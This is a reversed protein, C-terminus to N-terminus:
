PITLYVDEKIKKPFENSLDVQKTDWVQNVILTLMMQVTSWVVVPAYKYFYDVGEIKKNGKACFQRKIKQINYSIRAGGRWYGMCMQETVGNVQHHERVYTQM